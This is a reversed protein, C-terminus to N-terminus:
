NSHVPATGSALFRRLIEMRHPIFVDRMAPSIAFRPGAEGQEIFQESVHQFPEISRPFIVSDGVNRSSFHCGVCSQTYARAVVDAPTLTSGIRKLETDIRRSFEQGEITFQGRLFTLDFAGSLPDAESLLFDRPVSTFYLNVDRIALTAVHQVFEDRFARAAPPMDNGDFFTGPPINELMEPVAM